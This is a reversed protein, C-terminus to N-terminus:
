CGFHEEKSPVNLFSTMLAKAERWDQFGTQKVQYLPTIM